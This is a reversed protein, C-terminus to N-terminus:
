KVEKEINEIEKRVFKEADDLDKRLQKIIKEEEETLQRRTKTKELLKVQDRIDEKLIDFAKHLASEAERVEKRLNKLKKRFSAFKHWGYWIVFLLVFILAVLPIVVALLSVAWSGLKLFAPRGVAITVTDSSNSQAGREDVVKAWIKYAGDSLKEDAVFVFNGKGDSKTSQSVADKGEKQLWVVIQENPYKSAGKIILQDGSQLERPWEIITPAELPEIIFEASNALTNGAKDVAKAILTHKGPELVPTEYRHSGDDQWVQPSGNDIQIEYHDIGSTDDKADFIFKAKPDTLDKREVESIEFRTPKETDIQFRFHSVGGWGVSNRLRVHFYWIGDALDSLEKSSVAPSYYVTPVAQPIKGVLLRVATVDSPVSWTFKADSAAYWKNPDPHTPSSVQPAAPTGVAESPTTAEPVSPEAGGLSFSANGLSTLINTGQGDNALVSGSSFNLLATGAAKVRFNITIVKGSAGTFGPNLVIGEFNVTGASNSFSPEQVWLTFISDTKSLSIVELKDQPFSLVGSAANMAQDSSSVYVSLSITSGVTYSGTSPSFYINAAYAIQGIGFIASVLVVFLLINKIKLIGEM